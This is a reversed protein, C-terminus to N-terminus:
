PVYVPLDQVRYEGDKSMTVTYLFDSQPPMDTESAGCCPGRVFLGGDPTSFEVRFQFEAGSAATRHLRATRVQLCQFGNVTCADRLLAAHDQPDLAPNYHILLEYPGGYLQSAKQYRGASLHGFFDVLSQLALDQDAPAQMEPSQPTSATPGCAVMVACLALLLFLCHAKKM